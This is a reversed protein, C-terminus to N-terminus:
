LRRLAFGRGAGGPRLQARMGALVLQTLRVVGFANVRCLREVAEM